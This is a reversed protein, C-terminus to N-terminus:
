QNQSAGAERHSLGATKRRGGRDSPLTGLLIRCQDTGRQVIMELSIDGYHRSVEPAQMSELVEEDCFQNGPRGKASGRIVTVEGDSIEEGAADHRSYGGGVEISENFVGSCCQAFSIEPGAHVNVIERLTSRVPRVYLQM